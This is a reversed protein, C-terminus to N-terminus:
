SATTAAFLRFAKFRKITLMEAVNQEVQVDLRIGLRKARADLRAHREYFFNPLLIGMKMLVFGDGMQKRDDHDTPLSFIM